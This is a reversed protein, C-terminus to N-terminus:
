VRGQSLSSSGGWADYHRLVGRCIVAAEESMPLLRMHQEISSGREVLMDNLAVLVTFLEPEAPHLPAALREWHHRDRRMRHVASSYASILPMLSEQVRSPSEDPDWLKASDFLDLYASTQMGLIGIRENRLDELREHMLRFGSSGRNSQAMGRTWLLFVQGRLRRQPDYRTYDGNPEDSLRALALGYASGSQVYAISAQRFAAKADGREDIMLSDAGAIRWNTAAALLRAERDATINAAEAEALYMAALRVAVDRHLRVRGTDLGLSELQDRM